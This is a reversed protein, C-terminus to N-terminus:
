KKKGKMRGLVIGSNLKIAKRTHFRYASFDNKRLSLQAQRNHFRVKQVPTIKMSGVSMFTPKKRARMSGLKGMIVM